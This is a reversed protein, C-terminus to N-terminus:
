RDGLALEKEKSRPLQRVGLQRHTLDARPLLGRRVAEVLAQSTTTVGLAAKAGALRRDATRRSLNLARAARGLTQGVALHALLAQEDDTLAAVPAPEDITHQLAGLRRLDECMRDVVEREAAADIVLNAGHLAALVTKAADRATAVRVLRVVEEGAVPWQTTAVQTGLRAAMAQAMRDLTAKSAREVVCFEGM